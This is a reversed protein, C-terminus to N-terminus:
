REMDFSKTKPKPKIFLENEAQAMARGIEPRAKFIDMVRQVKRNAENLAKNLQQNIGKVEKIEGELAKIRDVSYSKRLEKLKKEVGERQSKLASIENAGVHKAEWMEKPVTVYEQRNIIGRKTIEAYNPYMMSIDSDVKSQDVYCKYAEYEAKVPIISDEILKVEEQAKSVIRSAEQKIKSVEEIATGRKLEEISKNGKKTAENLINVEYGMERELHKGLDKHFSQLDSRTIVEKASVKEIGKKKDITVPVFAFHMHPTKEDLHVHASIVNKKGYRDALFNYTHKFFSKEDAQDLDKPATVVWSCMVNVDKRNLCRVESCRKRIFEIQNQEPALNYNLHSKQTNIDQNGFKIYDGNIDKAREFHRTLNGTAARTYKQCNAMNWGGDWILTHKLYLHVQVM